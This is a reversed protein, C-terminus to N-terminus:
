SEKPRLRLIRGSDTSLYLWGRSDVALARIRERLSELLREEGIASGQASMMVRNLHTLRLAGSFLNGRWAPFAEGHYILLSGPAISPTYQKVPQEMGSKHTGEGVALPAWYEKGYSIVPWGYNRGKHVLNIEDGGRPGHENSWLRRTKSDYALGQPNRHGYSWIEPKANAIDLFPNDEPISGDLRLRLITGIHNNLNQAPDRKGRDGVGFFVHGEGDFAIRSGFHRTEATRSDSVLLDKWDILRDGRLRARALTTAGEGDIIKSYTFYIWGSQGYNPDLAVDLLGGQGQAYVEPTGSLPRVLFSELDLLYAKGSRQTFLLSDDPLFVMGWTIGFGRAVEDVQIGDHEHSVPVTQAAQAPNAMALLALCCIKALQTM